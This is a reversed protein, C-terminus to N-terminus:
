KKSKNRFMIMENYLNKHLNYLLTPHIIYLNKHLSTLHELYYYDKNEPNSNEYYYPYDVDTFPKKSNSYCIQDINSIYEATIKAPVYDETPILHDAMIEDLLEWNKAKSTANDDIDYTLYFKRNSHKNLLEGIQTCLKKNNSLFQFYGYYKYEKVLRMLKTLDSCYEQGLEEFTLTTRKNNNLM